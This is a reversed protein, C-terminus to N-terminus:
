WEFHAYNARRRGQRKFCRRLSSTARRTSARSAIPKMNVKRTSTRNPSPKMNGQRAAELFLRLRPLMEDESKGMVLCDDVGKECDVNELVKDSARCWAPGSNSCGMGATTFHFYKTGDPTPLAVAMMKMTSESNCIQNYSSTADCVFYLESEEKVKRWLDDPTPFHYVDKIIRSGMGRPSGTEADGHGAAFM